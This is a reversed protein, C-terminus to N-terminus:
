IESKIEPALGTRTRRGQVQAEKRQPSNKEKTSKKKKKKSKFMGFIWSMKEDKLDVLAELGQSQAQCRPDNRLEKSTFNERLGTKLM